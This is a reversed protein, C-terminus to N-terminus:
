IFKWVCVLPLLFISIPILYKWCLSMLQDIRLRPLTWRLWVHITMFILAKFIIWFVGLAVGLVSNTHGTTYDFLKVQGFNPLPSAWAGWFLIAGLISFLLMMGYESLFFIGFRIGSYETHFGGILESEGEPIDFPARNCEALTSIFFIVFFILLLPNSFVNWLFIGKYDSVNLGLSNLGFLYVEESPSSQITAIEWLNLTGSVLVVSLVSLGVPIEYSIIQGIARFAGILSFKSGSGWGAMVLGVVDVLVVALVFFVGATTQNGIKIPSIPMASFGAFVALFIVVPAWKFLYKEGKSPVIDEKQLMKLLDAVGQLTGFKGTETPGMRDQIFSSLKREIYFIILVTTLLLGLALVPLLFFEM